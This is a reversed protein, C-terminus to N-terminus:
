RAAYIVGENVGSLSACRQGGVNCGLGRPMWCINNGDPCGYNGGQTGCWLLSGSYDHFMGLTRYTGCGHTCVNGASAEMYNFSDRYAWGTPQNIGPNFPVPVMNARYTVMWQKGLDQNQEILRKYIIIRETFTANMSSMTQGTAFGATADGMTGMDAFTATDYQSNTRIYAMVEWGGGDTTMECYAKYSPKPGQPGDVDLTFVGDKANPNAAKLAKCSPASDICNGQVCVKNMPCAMGCMTCNMTDNALDVECGNSADKDCDGYGMDCGGLGCKSAACGAKGNSPKPCATSCKGCHLPDAALNTECGDTLSANCDEFGMQCLSGCMGGTCTANSNAPPMCAKGCGGCHAPDHDVDVCAEGCKQLGGTCVLTCAGKVCAIGKQCKKGCAGCNEADNQLDFCLGNCAEQGNGCDPEVLGLIRSVPANACAGSLLGAALPAVLAIIIRKGFTM